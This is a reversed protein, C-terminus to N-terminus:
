INCPILKPVMAGAKGMVPQVTADGRRATEPVVVSWEPGMRAGTEGM